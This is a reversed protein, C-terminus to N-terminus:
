FRAGSVPLHFGSAQFELFVSADKLSEPTFNSKLTPEHFLPKLIIKPVFITKLIFLRNKYTIIILYTTHFFNSKKKNNSKNQYQNDTGAVLLCTRRVGFSIHVMSTLIDSKGTKAKQVEM